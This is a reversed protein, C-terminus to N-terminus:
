PTATAAPATVAPTDTGAASPTTALTSVPETAASATPTFTIPPLPTAAYPPQSLLQILADIGQKDVIRVMGGDLSAYYGDQIPTEAGVKLIHSKGGSFVFSMTYSPKDLGAVDFGLAVNSLAQLATVQTAAAEAAAQNAESETPAKLVWKGSSNRAFEVLKGTSDNVSIDTPQGEDAAFLSVAGAQAPTPTAASAEQQKRNKLYFSFAVVAMLIVILLWTNRRIM